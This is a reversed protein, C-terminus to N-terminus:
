AKRLVVGPTTKPRPPQKRRAFKLGSWVENIACVKYDVLGHALGAGRVVDETLDTVVGSSKKPWAIWLGATMLDGHRGVGHELERRSGVFWIVLDVAGAARTRIEVDDPLGVLERRFEAPARLVAVTMGPKIGLKRVLPTGSYGATPM